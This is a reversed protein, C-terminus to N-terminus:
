LGEDFFSCRGQSDVIGPCHNGGERNRDQNEYRKGPFRPVFVFAGIGQFMLSLSREFSSPVARYKGHGRCRAGQYPRLCERNLARSFGAADASTGCQSEPCM